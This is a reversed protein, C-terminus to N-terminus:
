RGDLSDARYWSDPSDSELAQQAPGSSTRDPEFLSNGRETGREGFIDRAAADRRSPWLPRPPQAVQPHSPPSVSPGPLSQRAEPPAPFSATSEPFGLGKSELMLTQVRLAIIEQRSEKRQELQKRLDSIRSEVDAIQKERKELDQDFLNTFEDHLKDAISTREADDKADRLQKKLESIRKAQELEEKPIPEVISEWIVRAQRTQRGYSPKQSTPQPVSQITYPPVTPYALAPPTLDNNTPDFTDEQAQSWRGWSAFLGLAAMMMLCGGGCAISLRWENRINRRM